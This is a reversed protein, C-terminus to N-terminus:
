AHSERLKPFANQNITRANPFVALLRGNGKEIDGEHQREIEIRPVFIWEKLVEWELFTFTMWSGKSVGFLNGPDDILRQVCM